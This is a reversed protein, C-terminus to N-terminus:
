TDTEFHTSTIWRYELLQEKIADNKKMWNIVMM